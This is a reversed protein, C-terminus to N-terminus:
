SLFVTEKKASSQRASDIIKVVAMGDGATIVPENGSEISELFSEIQATYISNRPLVQPEFLSHWCKEDGSYYRVTNSIADWELIGKEGVAKCSRSVVRQLMDLHVNAIIKQGEDGHIELILEVLDDTDIDLIGTREICASVSVVDGFIWRIYDLEHSLELLAGGGLVERASVSERYDMGPRWDPLYQGIESRVSVVRGILQEKIAEKFCWLAQNFRLVYGVMLVSQKESCIKLLKDIGDLSNSLPKEILLHVGHTALAIGAEVHLPAPNSIIAAMPRKELAEQLSFVVGDAGLPIEPEQNHQRWVIIESDPRISRLCDLHRRGISGLGVILFTEKM